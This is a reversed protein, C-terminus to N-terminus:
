NKASITRDDQRYSLGLSLSVLTIVIIHLRLRQAKPHYLIARYHNTQWSIVQPPEAQSMVSAKAYTQVLNFLKERALRTM